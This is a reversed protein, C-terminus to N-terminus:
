ISLYISLYLHHTDGVNEVVFEGEEFGRAYIGRRLFEDLLETLYGDRLTVVTFTDM